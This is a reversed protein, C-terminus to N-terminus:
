LPLVPTPFSTSVDSVFTRTEFRLMPVLSRLVRDPASFLSLLLRCVVAELRQRRGRRHRRRTSSQNRTGEEANRFRVRGRRSCPMAETEISSNPLPISLPPDRRTRENSATPVLPFIGLYRKADVRHEWRGQLLPTENGDRIRVPFSSGWIWGIWCGLSSFFLDRSLGTAHPFLLIWGYEERSSAGWELGM